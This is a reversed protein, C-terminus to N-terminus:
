DNLWERVCSESCFNLTEVVTLPEDPKERHLTWIGPGEHGTSIAEFPDLVSDHFEHDCSPAQCQLGGVSSEELDSMTGAGATKWVM